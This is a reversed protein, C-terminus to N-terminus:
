GGKSQGARDPGNALVPAGVEIQYVSVRIVPRYEPLMPEDADFWFREVPQPRMPTPSDPTFVAALDQTGLVLPSLVFGQPATAM